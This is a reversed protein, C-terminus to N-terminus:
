LVACCDTPTHFVPIRFSSIRENRHHPHNFRPLPTSFSKFECKTLPPHARLFKGEQLVQVCVCVGVGVCVCVCEVTGSSTADWGGTKPTSGASFRSELRSPDHKKPCPDSEVVPATGTMSLSLALCLTWHCSMRQISGIEWLVFPLRSSRGRISASHQGEEATVDWV